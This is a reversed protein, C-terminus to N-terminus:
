RKSYCNILATHAVCYCHKRNETRPLFFFKRNPDVAFAPNSWAWSCLDCTSTFAESGLEELVLLDSPRPPPPLFEISFINDASAPFDVLQHLDAAGGLPELEEADAWWDDDASTNQFV